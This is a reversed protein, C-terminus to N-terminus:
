ASVTIFIHGWVGTRGIEVVFKNREHLSETMGVKLYAMILDVLVKSTVVSRIPQKLLKALWLLNKGLRNRTCPRSNREEFRM